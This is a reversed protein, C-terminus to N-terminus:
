RDASLTRVTTATRTWLRRVRVSDVVLGLLDLINFRVTLIALAMANEREMSAEDAACACFGGM